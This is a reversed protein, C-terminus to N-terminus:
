NCEIALDGHYVGKHGTRICRYPRVMVHKIYHESNLIFFIMLICKCHDINKVSPVYNAFFFVLLISALLAALHSGPEM